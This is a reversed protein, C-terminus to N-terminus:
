GRAAEIEDTTAPRFRAGDQVYLAPPAKPKLAELVDHMTQQAISIYIVEQEDRLGFNKVARGLVSSLAGELIKDKDVVPTSDCTGVLLAMELTRRMKAIDIHRYVDPNPHYTKLAVLVMNDTVRM